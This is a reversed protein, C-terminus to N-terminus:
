AAKNASLTSVDALLTAVTPADSVNFSNNSKSNRIMLLATVSAPFPGGAMLLRNHTAVVVCDEGSNLRWDPRSQVLVLAQRRWEGNDM